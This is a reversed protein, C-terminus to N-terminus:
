RALISRNFATFTKSSQVPLRNKESQTASIANLLNIVLHVVDIFFNREEVSVYALLLLILGTFRIM